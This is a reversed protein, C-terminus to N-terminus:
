RKGGSLDAGIPKGGEGLTAFASNPNVKLFDGLNISGDKNRLLHHLDPHESAPVDKSAQPQPSVTSVFPSLRDPETYLSGALSPVGYDCQQISSFHLMSLGSYFICYAASGKYQDRSNAKAVTGDIPNVRDGECYSLLNKYVNSSTDRDRCLDFNNADLDRTGNNFATCNTISLTGPNSNDTFGTALNNFAICNEVVHSVAISEGGLKFGNGDSNATGVGYSTIGNNFAVCNKITVPGIQGTDGKAYLDWGDDVNNYSICGDFVNNYGTTLKCAFGDSDEGSPDHNDHSTVNKILNDSPWTEISTCSSAKRGLQLGSDQCDHIDMDEVINHNGGVYVGNDGAGFLECGKLTWYDSNLSIGRNASNFTMDSFDFSVKVYEGNNEEPQITRRGEERTVAYKDTSESVALTHQILIPSDYKYTGELLYLTNGPTLLSIGTLFDVPNNKSGDGDRNGTPSAYVPKDHTIVEEVSSSDPVSTVDPQSTVPTVPTSSILNSKRESVEEKGCGALLLFFSSLLILNQKKM